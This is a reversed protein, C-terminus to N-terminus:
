SFRSDSAADESTPDDQGACRGAGEDGGRTRLHRENRTPDPLTAPSPAADIAHARLITIALQADFRAHSGALDRHALEEVRRLRYRVTKPHVFLREATRTLSGGEDLYAGLTAVLDTHHERDYDVVPGLVSRAYRLQDARDSPALLFRLLGLEDFLVAGARVTGPEAAAVAQAHRAQRHADRLDASFGVCASVGAAGVAAGAHRRLAGVVQEVVVRAVAPERDDGAVDEAGLVLAITSGRRGALVVAGAGRAAREAVGVLVDLRPGDDDRRMVPVVAVRLRRPLAVGLQRARAQAVPEDVLGELLQWVFDAHARSRAEGVARERALHLACATALHGATAHDAAEPPHPLGLGLRALLVGDAVVPRLLTWRPFGPGPPLVAEDFSGSGSSSGARRVHRAVRERVPGATGCAALEGLATDLLVADGGTHTCAATLLTAPAAGALLLGALEDRLAAGREHATVRASLAACTAALDVAERRAARSVRQATVALAALDALTVLAQTAAVDFAGCRRSWVMLVGVLDEGALMPAGLGARTGDDALVRSFEDACISRDRTYDDVKWPKRTDLIHGALGHGRRVRLNVSHVTWRGACAHMAATDGREDALLVGAIDAGPLRVAADVVAALAPEVADALVRTV